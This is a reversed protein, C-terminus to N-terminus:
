FIFHNDSILKENAGLLFVSADLDFSVGTDTANVDWGLGIFVANLGPAIKDLSVKQGKQLSIAM